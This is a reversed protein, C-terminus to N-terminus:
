TEKRFRWPLGTPDSGIYVDGQQGQFGVVILEPIFGNVAGQLTLVNTSLDYFWGGAYTVDGAVPSQGTGTFGGAPYFDLALRGGTPGEIHWRGQLDPPGQLPTLPPEGPQTPPQTGAESPPAPAVQEGVLIEGSRKREEEPKGATSEFLRGDASRMYLVPTAWEVSGEALVTKRAEALSADVPYLDAVADYFSQALTVAARDTVPFQMAIVAPIGRRILTQAVGGLPNGADARAGECANLVVLRLSPHDNLFTGLTQGPVLRTKGDPERLALVGEGSEPDFAGHGVFHLVHWTDRRLARQLAGLDPSELLEVRVKGAGTLGALAGNLRDWEAETDLAPLDDPDSILTLISLQGEVPLSPVPQPLVPTRVVPTQLSLALFDDEHPSWLLEWPVDALEACETVLRLRLGANREASHDLSRLLQKEVPPTLLARSLVRGFDGAERASPAGQRPGRLRTLFEDLSLDAPLQFSSKESPGVPSSWVRSEFTGDRCDVHLQFDFYTIDRV